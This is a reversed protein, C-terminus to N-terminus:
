NLHALAVGSSYNADDSLNSCSFGGAGDGICVRSPQGYNAFVADLDGDGNTDALAVGDSKRAEGVIDSCSFAGAGDGLCVSNGENRYNAVVVDLDGDRDVDGLAVALSFKADTGVDGCGSFGGAGNGFCVRNVGGNTAYTDNAFVADLDGDGNMDGLAVDSFRFVDSGVDSCSFAGAGDGICARSAQDYNAFVADLDGDGNLDGLEVGYSDYTDTAVDSCASFGGIGDGFCARNLGGNTGYLDNAFVADLFGDGNLDGLAVDTADNVDASVDNCSFDGDGDNLCVRNPAGYNAFVADLDADADLDGLAVRYSDRSVVTVDVESCDSGLGQPLCVRNSLGSEAFIADMQRCPQVQGTGDYY